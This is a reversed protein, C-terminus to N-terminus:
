GLVSRVREIVDSRTLEAKGFGPLAGLEQANAQAEPFNSVLMVPIGALAVDEKMARILETGESGDADLQRNVLVLDSGSKRLLDLADVITDAGTISVDFHGRLFRDMIGTDMHCQGVSLVRKTQQSM